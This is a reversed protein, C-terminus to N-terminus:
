FFLSYFNGAEKLSRHLIQEVNLKLGGGGVRM